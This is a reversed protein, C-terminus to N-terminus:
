VPPDALPYIDSANASGAIPYVSIQNWDSWYNGQALVLNYWSNSTGYDSAQSLGTPNNDIFSNHYITNFEAMEYASLISVGYEFNEKISNNFIQCYSSGLIYIGQYCDTVTCNTITCNSCTDLM